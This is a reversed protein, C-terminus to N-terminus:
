RDVGSSPGVGLQWVAQSHFERRIEGPQQSAGAKFSCAPLKPTTPLQTNTRKPLQRADFAILIASLEVTTTLAHASALSELREESAELLASAARTRVAKARLARGDFLGSQVLERAASPAPLMLARERRQLAEITAGHAAAIDALHSARSVVLAARVAPERADVFERVLRRAAAPTRAAPLAECPEHVVAVETHVADGRETSLTLTYVCILGPQLNSRGVRLASM